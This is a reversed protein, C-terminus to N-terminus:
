VVLSSYWGSITVTKRKMDQSFNGSDIIGHTLVSSLGGRPLTNREIQHLDQYLNIIKGKREKEEGKRRKSQYICYM